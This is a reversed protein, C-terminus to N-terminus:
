FTGLTKEDLYHEFDEDTSISRNLLSVVLGIIFGIFLSLVIIFIKFANNEVQYINAGSTGSVSYGQESIINDVQSKVASINNRNDTHINLQLINSDPQQTIEATKEISQNNVNENLLANLEGSTNPSVDGETTYYEEYEYSGAPIVLNILTGIVGFILVFIIVNLANKKLFYM